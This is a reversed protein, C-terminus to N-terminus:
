GSRLVLGKFNYIGTFTRMLINQPPPYIQTKKFEASAPPSHDAQRFATADWEKLIGKKREANSVSRTLRM